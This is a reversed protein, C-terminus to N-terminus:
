KNKVLQLRDLYFKKNYNRLFIFGVHKSNVDLAFELYDVTINNLFTIEVEEELYKSLKSELEEVSKIELEKNKNFFEKLKLEM